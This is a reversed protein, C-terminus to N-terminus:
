RGQQVVAAAVRQKAQGMHGGRSYARRGNRIDEAPPLSTKRQYKWRPDYGLIGRDLQQCAQQRQNKQRTWRLPKKRRRQERFEETSQQQSPLVSDRTEWHIAAYLRLIARFLAKGDQHKCPV